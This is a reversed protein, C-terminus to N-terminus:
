ESMRLLIKGKFEVRLVNKLAYKYDDFSYIKYRANIELHKNKILLFLQDFAQIKETSSARKLWHRLHFINARINLHQTIYEWDVQKKSFIGVSLFQGKQTVCKALITGQQGGVSDIAYDVGRKKTISIISEAISQRNTNLVYRVGMSKLLEADQDSRVIAIINKCHFHILQILSRGLSSACANIAIFNNPSINLLHECIVWASLPNIFLQAAEIDSIFDPIPLVQCNKVVLFEQWTGEVDILLVRKGLLKNNKAHGVKEIVGVGEFGVLAPLLTRHRYAGTVPILDSPNIPTLIMKVLLEDETLERLYSSVPTIQTEPDGFDKYSLSIFTKM